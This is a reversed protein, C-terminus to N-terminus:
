CLITGVRYDENQSQFYPHISNDPQFICKSRDVEPNFAMREPTLHEMVWHPTRNRRDYSVIFDEFTRLNDFGPYGFRMIEAARSPRKWFEIQKEDVPKPQNIEIQIPGKPITPTGPQLILTSAAASDAQAKKMLQPPFWWKGSEREKHGLFYGTAGTTSALLFAYVNQRNM